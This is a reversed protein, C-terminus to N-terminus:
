SGCLTRAEIVNMGMEHAQRIRGGSSLSAAGYRSIERTAAAIAMWTGTEIPDPPIRYIAATHLRGKTISDYRHRMIRAGMAGLFNALDVVYPEKAANVITTTGEARAAALM